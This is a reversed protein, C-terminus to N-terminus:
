DCRGGGGGGGGVVESHIRSQHCLLFFMYFMYPLLINIPLNYWGANLTRTLKGESIIM